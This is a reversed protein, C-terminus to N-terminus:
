YVKNNVRDYFEKVLTKFVPLKTSEQIDYMDPWMNAELVLIGKSSSDILDVGVIM